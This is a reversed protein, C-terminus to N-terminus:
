GNNYTLLLPYKLEIGYKVCLKNMQLMRIPNRILGNMANILNILGKKHRLKYRLANANSIPKITGGFKQKVLYLAQKDRIDITIECSAYGKKTLIFYGDGDILGALWEDFKQSEKLAFKEAICIDEDINCTKLLNVTSYNNVIYKLSQRWQVPKEEVHTGLGLFGGQLNCLLGPTAAQQACM